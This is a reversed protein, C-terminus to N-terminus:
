IVNKLVELHAAQLPPVYCGATKQGGGRRRRTQGWGHEQRRSKGRRGRTQTHTHKHKHTHTHTHTHTHIYRGGRATAGRDPALSAAPCSQTRSRADGRAQSSRAASRGSVGRQATAYGAPEALHEVWQLICDLCFAHLCGEIM